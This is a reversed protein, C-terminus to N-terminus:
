PLEAKRLRALYTAEYLSRIAPARASATASVRALRSFTEGGLKRAEALETAAHDLDANLAYASALWAHGVPFAPNASRAKELWLIAEDIRSQLLHAEGIRYLFLLTGPYRPSLRIAQQQLAIAEEFM